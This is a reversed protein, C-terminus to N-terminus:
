QTSWNQDMGDQFFFIGFYLAVVVINSVCLTLCQKTTSGSCACRPSYGDRHVVTIGHTASCSNGNEYRKENHARKFPRIAHMKQLM